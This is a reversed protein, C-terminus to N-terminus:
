KAKWMVIEMELPINFQQQVTTQATHVLRMFDESSAPQSKAVFFNAHLDSIAITGEHIGKLGARDILAGASITSSPNKFVCGASRATYPQSAVRQELLSHARAEIAKPDDPTLECVVHTIIVPEPLACKRYSFIPNDSSPTVIKEIGDFTVCELTRVVNGMSCAKTGANGAVAGGVTGPIGVCYELGILGHKICTSIFTTLNCAAGVRANTANFEVASFGCGLQLVWGHVGNDSVLLNTGNGLIHVPITERRAKALTDKLESMTDVVIFADCTGGIGLSTHHALPEHYLM